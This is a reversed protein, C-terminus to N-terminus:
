YAGRGLLVAPVTAFLLRLDLAISRERIYNHTANIELAQQQLIQNAEPRIVSVYVSHILIVAVFLSFLQYLFEIPLQNRM